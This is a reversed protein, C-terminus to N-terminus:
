EDLKSEDVVNFTGDNENAIRELLKRYEVDTDKDNVFAITNIKAKVGTAPDPKNLEKIRKYVADNDPFDGDTLFYVLDPKRAFAVTLAPMPDSTAAVTVDELFQSASRRNDVNALQLSEQKLKAQSFAIAKGDQFFIVDFSQPVKLKAIAKNLQEKLSAFKTTMSGSSDCIFIIKRANGGNGFVAGRPGNQGGGPPGFRALRGGAGGTGTGSGLGMGGGNGSGTLSRAPANGSGAAGDSPDLSPGLKSSNGDPTANKQDQDQMMEMAPNDNTGVNPVGGLVKSTPAAATPIVTQDKKLIKEPDLTGTAAVIFIISGLVIIVVHAILSTVFPLVNQVWPQQFFSLPVPGQEEPPPQAGPPLPAGPPRAGMPPAGGPQPPPRM